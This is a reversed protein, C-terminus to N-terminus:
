WPHCQRVSALAETGYQLTIDSAMDNCFTGVGPGNLCAGPSVCLLAEGSTPCPYLSGLTISSWKGEELFGFSSVDSQPRDM